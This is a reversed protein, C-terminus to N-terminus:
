HYSGTLNYRRSLWEPSVRIPDCSYSVAKQNSGQKCTFDQAELAGAVDLSICGIIQAIMGQCLKTDIICVGRPIVM